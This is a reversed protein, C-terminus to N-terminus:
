VSHIRISDPSAGCLADSVLLQLLCGEQRTVLQQAMNRWHGSHPPLLDEYCVTMWCQLQLLPSRPIGVKKTRASHKQVVVAM